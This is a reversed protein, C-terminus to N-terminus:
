IALRAKNIMEFTFQMSGGDALRLLVQDDVVEAIVGEFTKGGDHADHLKVRAKKGCLRRFDDTSRIPRELGPSSVELHYAHDILDEVDLYRGLERSVERCNELTVGAESDIFIRLIWGHGERRFQVEFLELELTSLLSQLFDQVKDIILDSMVEIGSRLRYDTLSSTGVGSGVDTVGKMRVYFFAPLAWKWLREALVYVPLYLLSLRLIWYSSQAM